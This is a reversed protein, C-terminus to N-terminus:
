RLSKNEFRLLISDRADLGLRKLAARLIMENTEDIEMVDEGFSPGFLNRADNM